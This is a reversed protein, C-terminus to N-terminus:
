TRGWSNLAGGSSLGTRAQTAQISSNLGGIRAETNRDDAVLIDGVTRIVPAVAERAAYILRFQEEVDDFSGRFAGLEARDANANATAFGLAVQKSRVFYRYAACLSIEDALKEIEVSQTAHPRQLAIIERAPVPRCYSIESWDKKIDGPYSGNGTQGPKWHRVLNVLSPYVGRQINLGVFPCSQLQQQGQEAVSVTQVGAPATCGEIPAGNRIYDVLMDATYAPPVRVKEGKATYREDGVLNTLSKSFGRLRKLQATSMGGNIGPITSTPNGTQLGIDKEGFMVGMNRSRVGDLQQGDHTKNIHETLKAYCTCSTYTGPQAQKECEPIKDIVVSSKGFYQALNFGGGSTAGQYIQAGGQVIQGAGTVYNGNSVNGVGNSVNGVGTTVGGNDKAFLDTRGTTNGGSDGAASVAQGGQSVAEVAADASSRGGGATVKRCEEIKRDIDSHMRAQDPDAMRALALSSQEALAQRAFDRGTANTANVSGFSTADLFSHALDSVGQAHKVVKLRNERVLADNTGENQLNPGPTTVVLNSKTTNGAVGLDFVGALSEASFPKAGNADAADDYGFSNISQPMVQGAAGATVYAMSTPVTLSMQVGDVAKRMNFGNANNLMPQRDHAGGFMEQVVGGNGINQGYINGYVGQYARLGAVVAQAISGVTTGVSSTNGNNNATGPQQTGTGTSTANNQAGAIVTFSFPSLLAALAIGVVKLGRVRTRVTFPMATVVKGSQEVRREM